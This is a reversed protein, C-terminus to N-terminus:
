GKAPRPPQEPAGSRTKGAGRGGQFMSADKNLRRDDADDLELLVIRGDLPMADLMVTLGSGVDHPYAHGIRTWVIRKGTKSRKAAYAILVPDSAM